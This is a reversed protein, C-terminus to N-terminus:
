PCEAPVCVRLLVGDASKEVVVSHPMARAVCGASAVQRRAVMGESARPDDLAVRPSEAVITAGTVRHRWTHRVGLIGDGGVHERLVHDYPREPDDPTAARRVYAPPPPADPCKRATHGTRTCIRCPV